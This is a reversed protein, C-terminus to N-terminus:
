VLNAAKREGLKEVSPQEMQAAMREVSTAAMISDREDASSTGKEVDKEIKLATLRLDESWDDIMRAAEGITTTQSLM